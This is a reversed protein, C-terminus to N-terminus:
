MHELGTKIHMRQRHGPRGMDVGIPTKFIELGPQMRAKVIVQHRGISSDMPQERPQCHVVQEM